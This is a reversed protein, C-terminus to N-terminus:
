PQRVKRPRTGLNDKFKSYIWTSVPIKLLFIHDQLRGYNNNIITSNNICIIIQQLILVYYGIIITNRIFVEELIAILIFIQFFSPRSSSGAQLSSPLVNERDFPLYISKDFSCIARKEPDLLRTVTWWDIRRLMGSSTLGKFGSNFGM